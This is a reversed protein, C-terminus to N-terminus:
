QNEGLNNLIDLVGTFDAFLASAAMKEQLQKIKQLCAVDKTPCTIADYMKKPLKIANGDEMAFAMYKDSDDNFAIVTNRKAFKPIINDTSSAIEPVSPTFQSLKRKPYVFNRDPDIHSTIEVAVDHQGSSPQESISPQKQQDRAKELMTKVTTQGPVESVTKKSILLNGTLAIAAIIAAASGYKIPRSYRKHFPIVKAPTGLESNINNWINEAPSAEFSSLRTGVGALTQDDMADAIRGWVEEPPQVELQFLKNQIQNDM